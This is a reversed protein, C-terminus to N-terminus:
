PTSIGSDGTDGRASAAVRRQRIRFPWGAAVVAMGLGSLALLLSGPEPIATEPPSEPEFGPPTGLPSPAPGALPTLSLTRPPLGPTLELPFGPMSGFQFGTGGGPPAVWPALPPAWALSPPPAGPPTGLPSGSPTVPPVVTSCCEARPAPVDLPLEPISLLESPTQRSPTQGAPPSGPVAPQFPILGGSVPLFRFGPNEQSEGLLTPLMATTQSPTEPLFPPFVEAALMVEHWRPIAGNPAPTEVAELVGPAPGAAEVPLQPKVSVRNGCRARACNVGDTLLTEGAGLAVPRRTWYINDGVRYSVYVPSLFRSQEARTNARGFDAYHRAAVADHDLAERLEEPNYAGGAIVSFRYVPRALRESFAARAVIGAEPAVVTGGSFNGAPPPHTSLLSYVLAQLCAAAAILALTLLHRRWPLRRARRRSKRLEGPM